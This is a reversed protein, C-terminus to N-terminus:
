PLLLVWCQLLKNDQVLKVQKQKPNLLYKCYIVFTIISEMTHAHSVTDHCGHQLTLHKTTSGWLLLTIPKGAWIETPEKLKPMTKSWTSWNRGVYWLVHLLLFLVPHWWGRCGVWWLLQRTEAMATTCETGVLHVTRGISKELWYKWYKLKKRKARKFM